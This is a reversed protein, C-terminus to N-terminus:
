WDEGLGISDEYALEAEVLEKVDEPVILADKDKALMKKVYAVIDVLEDNDTADDSDVDLLGNAEYYDWIMDIVNLLEDDDYKHAKEESLRSRMFAIAKIEDYELSEDASM